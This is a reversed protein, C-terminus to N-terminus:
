ETRREFDPEPNPRPDDPRKPVEPLLGRESLLLSVVIVLGIMVLKLYVLQMELREPELSGFPEIISLDSNVMGIVDLIFWAFFEDIGAVGEHFISDIDGRAVVMLNFVFETLVIIFAGIVMGRNNARGGVIFAAWILFTSKVPNIFDDLISMNLWAWLAGGFGAIAAGVALSMAKHRFVDHGHHMTVEEDERIARLIRGWPSALMMDVLTWILFLSILAIAALLVTYPADQVEAGTGTLNFWEGVSQAMSSEWWDQLPLEYLQIGIATTGTGARLLPEARMSIRVIEGLSITVIAFYDMRLRATPYALLWGAVGSVLVAAILGFFPSWGHGGPRDEPVTLIGLTIAGIGAFFIVGFNTMGTIGTHLNLSIALISFACVLVIIRSIQMSKTFNTVSPLWWALYMLLVLFFAFTVWSGRESSRGYQAKSAPLIVGWFNRQLNEAIKSVFKTLPNISYLIFFLGLMEIQEFPVYLFLIIGFLLPFPRLNTSAQEKINRFSENQNILETLSSFVSFILRTLDNFSLVLFLYALEKVYMKSETDRVLGPEIMDAFYLLLVAVAVFLLNLRHSIEAKSKAITAAVALIGLLLCVLYLLDIVYYIIGSGSTVTDLFYVFATFAVGGLMLAWKQVETLAKLKTGLDNFLSMLESRSLFLTIVALSIGSVELLLFIVDIFLYITGSGAVLYDVLYVFVTGSLGLVMLQKKQESSLGTTPDFIKSYDSIYSALSSYLLILGFISLIIFIFDVLYYATGVGSIRDDLISVFVIQFAAAVFISLKQSSSFGRFQDGVYPLEPLSSITDSHGIKIHSLLYFGFILICWLIFGFLSFKLLCIILLILLGTNQLSYVSGQNKRAREIQWNKLAHGLGKPMLMLVGILFLYPMAEEFAAYSPRDLKSGASILVPGSIARVMGIIVSAILAGRVSGLTGLVIVSFAPLLITLGVNPNVRVYMGFLVGGFGSIGAALFASTMHVREVNIGSSAALDPNDAVARMQRGLRTMNLMLLLLIVAAFVGVILAAKTHQLSYSADAMERFPLYEMVNCIGSDSDWSSSFDDPKGAEICAIQDMDSHSKEATREGFRFRMTQNMWSPWLKIGFLSPVSEGSFETSSTSLRWDVDPVFLYQDAGYRIYLIGRLIMAVGLSAIMMAQPLANRKRFRSYILRDILVGLLGTLVFGTVCAWFLLDWTLVEDKKVDINLVKEGEVLTYFFPSWMVTFGVYAGFLMTEAQAFNGFRQVKYTLTLGVAIALYAAAWYFGTFLVSTLRFTPSVTTEQGVFLQELCVAFILLIIIPSSFVAVTRTWGKLNNLMWYLIYMSSLIFEFFQFMWLPDGYILLSFIGSQYRLGYAADFLVFFALKLEVPISDWGDRISASFDSLPNPPVTDSPEDLPVSTHSKPLLSLITRKFMGGFGFFCTIATGALIFVYAVHLHELARNYHNSAVGDNLDQIQSLGVLFGLIILVFGLKMWRRVAVGEKDRDM